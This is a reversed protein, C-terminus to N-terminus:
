PIYVNGGLFHDNVERGGGGERGEERVEMPRQGVGTSHHFASALLQPKHRQQQASLQQLLSCDVLDTHTIVVGYQM